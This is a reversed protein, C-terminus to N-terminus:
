HASNVPTPFTTPAVPNQDKNKHLKRKVDPWFEKLVNSFADTACQIMLKETNDKWDRTDPYYLNSIAVATANGGWEELNFAKGGSDMKTVFIQSAAYLARHIKSGEGLRFYRPDEHFVAPFLGETMLNGIVQDGYAAGFRKAYGAVGQGFSPNSNEIQYLGAFLAATPYVPIDISDKIAINIKEAASIKRFPYANETMRNNPLVGYIRKDEPPPPAPLVSPAPPPTPQPPDLAQAALPALSLLCVLVTHLRVM